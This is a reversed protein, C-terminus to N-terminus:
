LYETPPVLSGGALYRSVGWQHYAELKANVERAVDDASLIEAAVIPPTSPFRPMEQGSPYACVDIIYSRGALRVRLESAPVLGVARSLSIGLGIQLRSHTWDPMSRQIVEGDVFDPEPGDFHMALFQELSIGTSTAMGPTYRMSVALKTLGAGRRLM